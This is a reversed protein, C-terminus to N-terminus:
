RLLWEPPTTLDGTLRGQRRAEATTWERGSAVARRRMDSLWDAHAELADIYGQQVVLAQNLHALSGDWPRGTWEVCLRSLKRRTEEPVVRDPEGTSM